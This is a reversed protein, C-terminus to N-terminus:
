LFSSVPTSDASPLWRPGHRQDRSRDLRRGVARGARDAARDIAVYLDLQTDEILVERAETLWIQLHCRKDAGGRPGNVDSLRVCLREVQTEAWGLAFHLRRETHARLAPTLDFGLARVDLQM